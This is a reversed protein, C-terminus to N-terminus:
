IPLSIGVKKRFARPSGSLRRPDNRDALAGLGAECAQRRTLPIITDPESESERM